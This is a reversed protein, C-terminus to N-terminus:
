LRFRSATVGDTLAVSSEFSFTVDCGRLHIMLVLIILSLMKPESLMHWLRSVTIETTNLLSSLECFVISETMTQWETQERTAASVDYMRNHGPHCFLALGRAILFYIHSDM